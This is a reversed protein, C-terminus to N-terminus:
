GGLPFESAENIGTKTKTQSGGREGAEEKGRKKRRRRKNRWPIRLYLSPGAIRFYLDTHEM